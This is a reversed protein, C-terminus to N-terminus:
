PRKTRWSILTVVISVVILVPMVFDLFVQTIGRFAGMEQFTGGTIQWLMAYYSVLGSALSRGADAGIMMMGGVRIVYVVVYATAAILVVARWYRFNAIVAVCALLGFACAVMVSPFVGPLQLANLLVYLTWAALALVGPVTAIARIRNPDSM